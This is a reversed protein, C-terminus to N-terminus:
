RYEQIIGGTIKYLQTQADLLDYTAQLQEFATNLYRLQIDRYNFSNIAGARFKEEAIELNLAAAELNENAVMLSQKRANYIEFLNQLQSELQLELQETELDTIERNIKANEIKRQQNFGDFLTFSLSLNAYYGYSWSTSEEFDQPIVKNTNYDYGANLGLRPYSGSKTLKLQNDELEQAIYQNLLTRNREMMKRNLESYQPDFFDVTFDGTLRFERDPDEGLFLNLNRLSNDYNVEQLLYNSSDSLFANKEQLVEFTVANGLEKRQLIRQYRDKSLSKVEELVALKEKELLVKYYALIIGELTNEISLTASGEALKQLDQLNEKGAQIAWGNFITWQLTAGPSVGHTTAKYRGNGGQGGTASGPQNDFRNSQNVSLSLSPYAGANGWDNNNEAIELDRESIRIDFNNELGISIAKMLSLDEQAYANSFLTLMAILGTFLVKRIM